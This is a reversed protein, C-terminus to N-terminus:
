RRPVTGMLCEWDGLSGRFGLECATHYSIRAATEQRRGGKPDPTNRYQRRSVFIHVALPDSEAQMETLATKTEHLAAALTDLATQLRKATM